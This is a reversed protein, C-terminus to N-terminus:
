GRELRCEWRAGDPGTWTYHIMMGDEGLLVPVPSKYQGGSYHFLDTNEPDARVERKSTIPKFVSGTETLNRIDPVIVDGSGGAHIIQTILDGTFIRMLPFFLMETGAHRWEEKKTRKFFIEDSELKYFGRATVVGTNLDTFEFDYDSRDETEIAELAIQIGFKESIRKSQVTRKEDEMRVRWPERVLVESDMTYIYTGSTEQSMDRKETSM